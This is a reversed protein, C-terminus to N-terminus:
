EKKTFSTGVEKTLDKKFYQLKKDCAQKIKNKFAELKGNVVMNLLSNM